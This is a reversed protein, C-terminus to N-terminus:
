PFTISKLILELQQMWERKKKGPGYIFGTALLISDKAPTQIAYSLFPGGMVDNHMRWLGRVELAYQDDMELNSFFLPLYRDDIMMRTEMDPVSSGVVRTMSDQMSRFGEKQFQNQNRYAVKKLLIGLSIDSLEKRLWLTEEKEVAVVYEGPLRMNVGAFAKVQRNIAPDEQAAYTQSELIPLDHEKLKALIGPGSQRIADYVAKENNGYIYVVIQGSAWRNKAVKVTFESGPTNLNDGLDKRMFDDLNGGQLGAHSIILYTRLERKVPFDGLEKWTVFSLDYLPEPSPLLLFPAGFTFDVSDKLGAEWWSSDAVVTLKNAKGFAAPMGGYRATVVDQRCGGISVVLLLIWVPNRFSIKGFSM